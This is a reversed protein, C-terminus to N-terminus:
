RGREENTVVRLAERRVRRHAANKLDHLPAGEDLEKSVAHALREARSGDGAHGIPGDLMGEPIPRPSARYLRDDEAFDCVCIVEVGEDAFVEFDGGINVNIAVRLLKRKDAM